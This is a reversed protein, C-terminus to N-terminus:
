EAKGGITAALDILDDPFWGRLTDWAPEIDGIGLNRHLGHFPTISTKTKFDVCRFDHPEHWEWGFPIRHLRLGRVLAGDLGRSLDAPIPNRKNTHFLRADLLWPIAGYQSPSSIRQLRGTAMDVIALRRGTVIVPGVDDPRDLLVDFVDPHLWDDSGIWVIWDAGTDAAHQLGVNWKQGFPRNPAEVAVAGYQRAIDLNDDDAVIM